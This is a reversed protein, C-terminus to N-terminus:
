IAALVTSLLLSGFLAVAVGAGGFTAISFPVTAVLVILQLISLMAFKRANVHYYLLRSWWPTSFLFLSFYGMM